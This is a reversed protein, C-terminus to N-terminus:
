ETRNENQQSWVHVVKDFGEEQTPEVYRSNFRDWVEGWDKYDYSGHNSGLRRNISDHRNLSPMIHAEIDYCFEQGLEIYHKRMKRSVNTEDIVVDVYLSMLAYLSKMTIRHVADEKNRDFLYDGANIMYRIADRSVIYFGQQVLEKCYTSKGSGINGVLVILRAM